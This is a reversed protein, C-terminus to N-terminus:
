DEYSEFQWESAETCGNSTHFEWMGENGVILLAPDYEVPDDPNVDHIFLYGGSQAIRAQLSVHMSYLPAGGHPKFDEETVARWPLTTNHLMQFPTLPAHVM